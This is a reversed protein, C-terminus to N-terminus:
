DPSSIALLVDTHLQHRSICLKAWSLWFYVAQRPHKWHLELTLQWRCLCHSNITDIQQVILLLGAVLTSTDLCCCFAVGLFHMNLMFVSLMCGIWCTKMYSDSSHQTCRGLAYASTNAPSCLQNAVAPTIHWCLYTALPCHQVDPRIAYFVTLLMGSFTPLSSLSLNQKAVAIYANQQHMHVDVQWLFSHSAASVNYINEFLVQWFNASKGALCYTDKNGWMWDYVPHQHSNLSNFWM